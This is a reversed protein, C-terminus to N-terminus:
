QPVEDDAAPDEGSQDQSVDKAPKSDTAAGTEKYGQDSASEEGEGPETSAPETDAAAEGSDATEAERAEEAQLKAREEAAAIAVQQRAEEEEAERAAKEAARQIQQRELEAGEAKRAEVDATHDSVQITLFRLVSEDLRLTREIEPVPKGEGLYSLLYYHGKNFNNIEYALKRKGVNECLLRIDGHKELIGDLKAFIAGSGEESIEPQIIITTEYERM